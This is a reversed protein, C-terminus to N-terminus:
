DLREILKPTVETYSHLGSGGHDKKFDEAAGKSEFPILEKGMPGYVDSGVVYFAKKGDIMKLSYYDTVRIDNIDKLSKKPNYRKLDFIYKFLDKAGDFYAYSGDSYAVYGVWEPYKYVFMGCVPCKDKKSPRPVSPDDPFAPQCIVGM